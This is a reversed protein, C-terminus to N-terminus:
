SWVFWGLGAGGACLLLLFGVVLGGVLMLVGASRKAPAPRAGGREVPAAARPPSVRGPRQQLRDDGREAEAGAPLVEPIQEEVPPGEPVDGEAAAGGVLFTESCTPCRVNHGGMEDALQYQKGCGPCTTPIPM